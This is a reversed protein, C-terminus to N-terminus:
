HDRKPCKKVKQFFGLIQEVRRSVPQLGIKNNKNWLNIKWIIFLVNTTRNIDLEMVYKIELVILSLLPSYFGFLPMGEPHGCSCFYKELNFYKIAMLTISFHHLAKQIMSEPTWEIWNLQNIIFKIQSGFNWLKETLFHSFAM